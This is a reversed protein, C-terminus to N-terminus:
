HRRWAQVIEIKMWQGHSPGTNVLVRIKTWFLRWAQSVALTTRTPTSFILCSFIIYYEALRERLIEDYKILEVGGNVRGEIIIWYKSLQFHYNTKCFQGHFECIGHWIQFFHWDFNVIQRHWIGVLIHITLLRSLPM